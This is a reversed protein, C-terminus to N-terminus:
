IKKKMVYYNAYLLGVYYNFAFTKILKKRRRISHYAEIQPYEKLNKVTERCWKQAGKFYRAELLMVPSYVELILVYERLENYEPKTKIFQHIHAPFLLYDSAKKDSISSNYLSDNRKVYHYLPQDLTSIKKSYYSLQSMLYIDEGLSLTKNFQIDNEYLARKHLCQWLCYYGKGAWITKLFEINTYENMGYSRSEIRQNKSPDEEWFKMITIDANTEVAKRYLLEYCNPELYDDGDLYHIYEASSACRGTERAVVVGENQKSILKIREDKETYKEIISLSNDSSGDNVVIIELEKFTQNTVSWLCKDLYTAVNYVPIIVSILKNKNM